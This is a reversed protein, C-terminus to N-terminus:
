RVLLSLSLSPSISLSLYLSSVTCSLHPVDSLSPYNVTDGSVNPPRPISLLSLAFLTRRWERTFPSPHLLLPNPSLSLSFSLSSSSPSSRSHAPTRGPCREVAGAQRDGTKVGLTLKAALKRNARKKMRSDTNRIVITCRLLLCRDLNQLKM